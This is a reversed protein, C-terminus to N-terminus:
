NMIKIVFKILVHYYGYSIFQHEFRLDLYVFPILMFNIISTVGFVSVSRPTLNVISSSSSPSNFIFRFM